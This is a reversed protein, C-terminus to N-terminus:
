AMTQYEEPIVENAQGFYKIFKQLNEDSPNYPDKLQPVDVGVKKIMCEEISYNDFNREIDERVAQLKRAVM